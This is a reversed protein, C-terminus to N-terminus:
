VEYPVDLVMRCLESKPELENVTLLQSPYGLAPLLPEM